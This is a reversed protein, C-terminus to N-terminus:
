RQGKIKEELEKRKRDLGELVEKERTKLENLRGEHM